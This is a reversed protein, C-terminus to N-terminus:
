CMVEQPQQSRINDMYSQLAAKRAVRIEILFREDSRTGDGAYSAFLSDTEM